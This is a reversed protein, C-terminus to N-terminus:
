LNATYLGLQKSSILSIRYKVEYGRNSDPAKQVQTGNPAINNFYITETKYIKKNATYYEVEAAVMDITYNTNNSVTFELNSIGGFTARKYNSATISLNKALNVAPKQNSGARIVQDSPTLPQENNTPQQKTTTTERKVTKRNESTPKINVLVNEESPKEQKTIPEIKKAPVSVPKVKQAHNSEITKNNDIPTTKEKPAEIIPQQETAATNIVKQEPVNTAVLKETAPRNRNILLGVATGSLLLFLAAVAIKLKEPIAFKSRKHKNQKLLSDVYMKKIDDLPQSFREELQPEKNLITKPKEEVVAKKEEVVTKQVPTKIVPRSQSAPITVYIRKTAPQENGTVQQRTNTIPLETYSIELKENPTLPRDDTTQEKILTKESSEITSTVSSVTQTQESSKKYFRDYPQEEVVPAYAKLEEIESPYRWGASRGEIWVLDYAKLGKSILDNLVYPGEEKNNRLLIYTAM